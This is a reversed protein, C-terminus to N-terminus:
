PLKREVDAPSDGRWGNDSFVYVRKGALDAPWPETTSVGASGECLPERIKFDDVDMPLEGLWRDDSCWSALATISLPLNEPMRRRLEMLLGRYFARQSRTADFDAQVAAIGPERAARLIDEVAADRNERNLVAGKATEVRVVPILTVGAPLM